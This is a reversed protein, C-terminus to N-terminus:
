RPSLPPRCVCSNKFICSASSSVTFALGDSVGIDACSGAFRLCYRVSTAAEAECYSTGDPEWCVCDRSVSRRCFPPFFFHVLVISMLAPQLMRRTPTYALITCLMLQLFLARSLCASRDFVRGANFNRECQFGTSPPRICRM